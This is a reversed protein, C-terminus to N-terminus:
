SGGSDLSFGFAWAPFCQMILIRIIRVKWLRRVEGSGASFAASGSGLATSFLVANAAPCLTGLFM